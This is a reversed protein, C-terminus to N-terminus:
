PITEKFITYEYLWTLYIKIKLGIIESMRYYKVYEGANFYSGNLIKVCGLFGSSLVRVACVEFVLCLLQQRHTGEWM